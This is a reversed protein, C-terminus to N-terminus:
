LTVNDILRAPGIRVAMSLLAGPRRVAYLALVPLGLAASVAMKNRNSEWWHPLWLPCVAIALLLAVFPAITYVPPAGVTTM